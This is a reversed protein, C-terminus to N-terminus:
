IGGWPTARGGRCRHPRRGRLLSASIGPQAEIQDLRRVKMGVVAGAASSAQSCSKKLPTIQFMKSRFTSGAHPDVGHPM